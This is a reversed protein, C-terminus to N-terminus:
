QWFFILSLLQWTHSLFTDLSEVNRSKEWLGARDAECRTCYHCMAICIAACLTTIDISIM